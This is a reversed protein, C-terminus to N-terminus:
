EDFISNFTPSFTSHDDTSLSRYTQGAHLLSEHVSQNENNYLAHVPNYDQNIGQKPSVSQEPMSPIITYSRILPRVSIARRISLM